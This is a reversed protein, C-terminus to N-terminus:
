WRCFEVRVAVAPKKIVATALRNMMIARPVSHSQASADSPLGFASGAAAGAAAVSVTHDGWASTVARVPGM